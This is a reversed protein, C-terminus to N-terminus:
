PLAIEFVLNMRDMLTNSVVIRRGQALLMVGGYESGEEKNLHRDRLVILKTSYERGTETLMHEAYSAECDGIMEEVMDEEGERVKLEVEEELLRIMGQIILSRLVEKYAPSSSNLDSLIKAKTEDKLMELHEHRCTM